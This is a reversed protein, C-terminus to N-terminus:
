TGDLSCGSKLSREYDAQAAVYNLRATTAKEATASAIALKHLSLVLPAAHGQGEARCLYLWALDAECAIIRAEIWDQYATRLEDM